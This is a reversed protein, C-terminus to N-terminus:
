GIMGIIYIGKGFVNNKVMPQQMFNFTAQNRPLLQQMFNFTAQNRPLLSLFKVSYLM